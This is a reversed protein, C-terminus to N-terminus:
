TVPSHDIHNKHQRCLHCINRDRVTELFTHRMYIRQQRWEAVIPVLEDLPITELVADYRGLEDAIQTDNFGTFDYQDRASSLSAFVRMRIDM